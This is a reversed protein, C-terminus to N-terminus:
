SQRKKIVLCARPQIQSLVLYEKNASFSTATFFPNGQDLIGLFSDWSILLTFEKIHMAM